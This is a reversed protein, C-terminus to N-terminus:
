SEWYFDDKKRQQNKARKNKSSKEWAAKKALYNEYQKELYNDAM